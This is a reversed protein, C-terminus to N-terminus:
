ICLKLRNANGTHAITSWLVDTHLIKWLIKPIVMITNKVAVKPKHLISVFPRQHYNIYQQISTHINNLIKYTTKNQIRVNLWWIEFISICIVVCCSMFSNIIDMSWRFAYFNWYCNNNIQFGTDNLRMKKWIRHSKLRM